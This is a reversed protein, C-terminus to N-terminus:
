APRALMRAVSTAYWRGCKAPDVHTPTGEETLRAAVQAPTLGTASLARARAESAPPVTRPRGGRRMRDRVDDPLLAMAERTRSAILRREWQAVAARIDAVLRGNDTSTDVGLDLCIVAWGEADARDLMVAFDRTSRALRDLRAVAIADARGARLDDLAALLVPRNDMAKASIAEEERLELSAWGVVEATTRLQKAQVEPSIAQKDTSRRVYGIVRLEGVSKATRTM